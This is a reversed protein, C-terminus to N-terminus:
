VPVVSVSREAIGQFRLLRELRKRSQVLSEHQEALLQWTVALELLEARLGAHTARAALDRCTEAHAICEKRHEMRPNGDRFPSAPYM